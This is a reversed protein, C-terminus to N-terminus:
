AGRTLPGRPRAYFTRLETGTAYDVLAIALVSALSLVFTGV